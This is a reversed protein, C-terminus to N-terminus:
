KITYAYNGAGGSLDLTVTFTGTKPVPINGGSNVLNGKSDLGLEATWSGDGEFKFNTGATLSVNTATWQNTTSNFTMPTASLSWSNFDGAMRWLTTKYSVTLANVDANVRVYAPGAVYLNGASGAASMTTASTGWGYNTGNWNPASCLKFNNNAGTFNIYGEYAGDSKPAALIWGSQDKQTWSPTFSDGAIYLKPYILIVKYPTVTMSVASYLSSVSSAAGTSQNLDAKLRVVLTSASGLTLGMQNLLKNFDTGLYSQKLVNNSLTVKTANAWANAGSTDSPVDFYLTYSTASSFGYNPAAWAFTVVQTSDNSSSLVVQSASTNFGTIGAPQTLTTTSIDKKCSYAMIVLVTLYWYTTLSKKM